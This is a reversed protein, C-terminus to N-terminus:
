EAEREARVVMLRNEAAIRRSREHRADSQYRACDASSKRLEASLRTCRECSADRRVPVVPGHPLPGGDGGSPSTRRAGPVARRAVSSIVAATLFVAGLLAFLHVVVTM